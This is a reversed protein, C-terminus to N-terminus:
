LKSRFKTLLAQCDLLANKLNEGFTKSDTVACSRYSSIGFMIKKEMINYCTGYGDDVLPAFTTVAEFKSSVQSTSLYYYSLKKYGIDNFLEPLEIGNELAMQKLGFFHKDFSQNNMADVTFLRQGKIARLLLETKVQNESNSDTMSKLFDLAEISSARIVETRGLKFKRLSGSEYANGLKKHVRYFALQFAIQVFADPSVKQSKPFNKGFSDFNLVYLDLNDIQSNLTEKSKKIQDKVQDPVEFVLEESLDLTKQGSFNIKNNKIYRLIHDNMVAHPVAEAVTHEFNTGWVGNTGIIAQITKDFWRNAGFQKNGHLIQAAHASKKDPYGELLGDRTDLCLVFLSNHISKFNKQNIKNKCLIEYASAWIDRDDSTLIGIGLENEENSLEVIRKLNLYIETPDLNLGTKPDIVRLSFFRNNHLVTVHNNKSLDFNQTHMIKIQDIHKQPIRCTGLLKYYQDMCFYSDGSKEVPFEQNDILSKFNLMGLIYKTAFQLQEDLTRYDEQPYISGPNIVIPLSCRPELYVKDYWWDAIWNDTKKSKEVLLRQLKKAEDSNLLNIAAKQTAEFENNNLLPKVATLYKGITSQLQPVPLRPLSTQHSLTRTNKLVIPYSFSSGYYKLVERYRNTIGIFDNKMVVRLKNQSIM